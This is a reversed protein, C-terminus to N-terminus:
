RHKTNSKSYTNLLSGYLNVSHQILNDSTIGKDLDKSLLDTFQKDITTNDEDIGFLRKVYNLIVRITM